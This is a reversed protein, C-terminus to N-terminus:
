DKILNIKMIMHELTNYDNIISFVSSTAEIHREQCWEIALYKM